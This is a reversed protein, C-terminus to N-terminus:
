TNFLKVEAARRRILGMLVKGGAKNFMKIGECAKPFDLENVKRLATSKLFAGVGINYAFCVLASFQNRTLLTHAGADVAREFRVLDKKLLADAEEQTIEMDEVVDEGTHGYGITLINAPCRYAKLKCGEFSKLLTLGADNISYSM